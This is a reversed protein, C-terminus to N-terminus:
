YWAQASSPYWSPSSKTVLVDPSSWNSDYTHSAWSGNNWEAIPSVLIEECLSRSEVSYWHNDNNTYWEENHWSDHCWHNTQSQGHRGSSTVMNPGRVLIFLEATLLADSGATHACGWRKIGHERGLVELSGNPLSDRLEIRNPCQDCLVKDYAAGSSPLAAGLTFLKVLYALDYSGSFTLWCPSHGLPGALSSSALRRGLALATIGDTRHRPFDIGARRLFALSEETHAHTRADFHLNFIWVGHCAGDADVVAIGVQIPWLRDVNSRLAQHHVEPLSFQPDKCLFGPFEMDM